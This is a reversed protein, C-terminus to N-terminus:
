QEARPGPVQQHASRQHEAILAALVEGPVVEGPPETAMVADCLTCRLYTAQHLDDM